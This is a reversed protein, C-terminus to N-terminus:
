FYKQMFNCCKDFYRLKMCFLISNSIKNQRIFCPSFFLVFILYNEFLDKFHKEIGYYNLRYFYFKVHINETVQKIVIAFSLKSEDSKQIKNSNKFVAFALVRACIYFVNKARTFIHFHQLFNLFWKVWISFLKKLHQFM